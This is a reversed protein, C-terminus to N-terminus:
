EGRLQYVWIEGHKYALDYKDGITFTSGCYQCNGLKIPDHEPFDQSGIYELLEHKCDEVKRDITM